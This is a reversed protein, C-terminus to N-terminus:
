VPVIDGHELCFIISRSRHSVDCITKLPVDDARCRM